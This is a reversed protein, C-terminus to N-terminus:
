SGAAEVILSHAQFSNAVERTKASPSRAFYDQPTHLRIDSFGATQLL